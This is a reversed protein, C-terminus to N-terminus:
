ALENRNIIDEQTEPGLEVFFASYTAVRVLLDRYQEPAKQAARLVENSAFNFQVLNGGTECFTRLLAVMRDMKEDNKVAEPDIRMNLISGLALKVQDLKAVSRMTAPAGSTNRGQYPSIGGESLPQGAKRGDPLAGVLRGFMVNTTMAFCATVFKAGYHTRFQAVYDGADSLIRKAILDVYDDDNGFKPAKELQHLLGEYGEFNHNLADILEEMSYKKEEFIVKKVAALADAVNPIGIMGLAFTIHPATGGNYDDVGREMCPDYMSSLLVCPYRGFSAFDAHKNVMQLRLGAKLQTEFAELLQEFDKFARPDGTEPGLREKLVRGVGNNLALELALGANMAGGGTNRSYHPVTPNHCGTSIYDRTKELPVGLYLMSQISTDDSVFKLKGGLKKATEMAHKVYSNPNLRNIRVMMDEAGLGVDGEASLFLYSLENVADRGDPTIGGVCLSQMTPHGGKGDAVVYSQLNIGGNMKIFMLSFLEQVQEDTILGRARDRQYYPYLYQNARGFTPGAGWGEIMLAVYLLWCSQIAEFLNEAPHAPVKRCTAAIHELEAKRAPATEEAAMQEALAAYRGAFAILGQHVVQVALYFQRRTEATPDTYDLASLREEAEAIIGLSGVKLLKEYDAATHAWHHGNEAYGGTAVMIHDLRQYAPPVMTQWYEFASKGKWYPLYQRLTEVEADTLPQYRDFPRTSLTDLEDLLWQGKLEPAIAGGRIKSTFNGVFLEGEDIRVTMHSLIYALAKARRMLNSEGETQQYSETMYRLREVCIAPTTVMQNRLKQARATLAM